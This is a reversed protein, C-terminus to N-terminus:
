PRDVLEQLLSRTSRIEANKQEVEYASHLRERRRNLPPDTILIALAELANVVDEAELHEGGPARVNRDGFRPRSVGYWSFMDWRGSLRDTRHAKLRAGISSTEGFARGVYVARFESHLVYIGKSNWFNMEYPQKPDHDKNATGM